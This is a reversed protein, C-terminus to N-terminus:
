GADRCPFRRGRRGPASPFRGWAVGGRDVDVGFVPGRDQFPQVVRRLVAAPGREVDEAAKRDRDGALGAGGLARRVEVLRPVADESGIGIRTDDGENRHLFATEAGFRDLHPAALLAEVDGVSLTDPLVRGRRPSELRDSPDAAVRGEGVLFGYYTRVASVERRITAASLGLDKLLYVFDRLLPRTVQGPDRM